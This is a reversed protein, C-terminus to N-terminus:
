GPVINCGSISSRRFIFPPLLRGQCFCSLSGSRWSSDKVFAARDTAAWPRFRCRRVDLYLRILVHRPGVLKALDLLNWSLGQPHDVADLALCIPAQEAALVGAGIMQVRVFMHLMGHIDVVVQLSELVRKLVPQQLIWRM